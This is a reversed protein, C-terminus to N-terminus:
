AKKNAYLWRLFQEYDILGSTLLGASRLATEIDKDNATIATRCMLTILVDASVTAKAGWAERFTSIIQEFQKDEEHNADLPLDTACSTSASGSPNGSTSAERQLVLPGGSDQCPRLGPFQETQAGKEAISKKGCMDAVAHRVKLRSHQMRLEAYERQSKCLMNFLMSFHDARVSKAWTKADQLQSQIGTTDIGLFYAPNQASIELPTEVLFSERMPDAKYELLLAVSEAKGAFVAYHLPAEGDLDQANIDSNKTLLLEIALTRGSAAALHLATEGLSGRLSPSDLLLGPCTEIVKNIQMYRGHAASERLIPGATKKHLLQDLKKYKPSDSPPADALNFEGSAIGNFVRRRDTPDSCQTNSVDFDLVKSAIDPDFDGVEWSGGHFPRTTALAGSPTLIDFRLSNTVAVHVEFAPMSRELVKASQDVVLVLGEAHKTLVTHLIDLSGHPEFSHRLALGHLWYTTTDPLCLAEAHWEIAAMTDKVSTSYAQSVHFQPRQQCTSIHEVYSTQEPIKAKLFDDRVRYWDVHVEHPHSNEDNCYETNIDSHFFGHVCQVFTRLQELTIGRLAANNIECGIQNECRAPDISKM